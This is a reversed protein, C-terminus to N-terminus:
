AWSIPASNWSTLAFFSVFIVGSKWSTHKYIFLILDLKPTDPDVYSDKPWPTSGLLFFDTISGFFWKPPPLFFFPHEHQIGGGGLIWFSLLYLSLHIVMELVMYEMMFMREACIDVIKFIELDRVSQIEWNHSECFIWIM